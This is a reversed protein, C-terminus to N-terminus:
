HVKKCYNIQNFRSVNLCFFGLLIFILCSEGPRRVRRRKGARGEEVLSSYIVETLNIEYLIHSHFLPAYLSSFYFNRYGIEIRQVLKTKARKVGRYRPSNDRFDPKIMLSRFLDVSRLLVSFGFIYQTAYIYIKLKM